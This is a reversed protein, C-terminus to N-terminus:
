QTEINFQAREASSMNHIDNADAAELTFWYFDNDIDIQRYFDLYKDHEPDDEPLDSGNGDDSGWSHVGVWADDALWRENGSLFLDVGGSNTEGGPPVCTNIGAKHIALSAELNADDDESGPSYAIVITKIDPNDDLLDAVEDPTSSGILGRMVAFDDYASFTAPRETASVDFENNCLSELSSSDYDAYDGNPADGEEGCAAILLCILLFLLSKKM